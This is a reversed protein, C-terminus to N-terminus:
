MKIKHAIESKIIEDKTFYYNGEIKGKIIRGDLNIVYGNTADIIHLDCVSINEKKLIERINLTKDIFSDLSMNEGNWTIDIQLPYASEPIFTTYKEYSGKIADSGADQSVAIRKINPISNKILGVVMYEAETNVKIEFYNDEITEDRRLIVEFTIPLDGETIVSCSYHGFKSNYYAKDVKYKLDPYKKSLYERATIETQKIESPLGNMGIYVWAILISAIISIVAVTIFVKNKEM